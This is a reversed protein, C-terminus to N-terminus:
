EKKKLEKLSLIFSGIALVVGGILFGYKLAGMGDMTVGFVVFMMAVVLLLSSESSKQKKEVQKKM